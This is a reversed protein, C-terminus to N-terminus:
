IVPLGRLDSIAGWFYFRLHIIRSCDGLDVLLAPDVQIADPGAVTKFSIHFFFSLSSAFQLEGSWSRVSEESCVSLNICCLPDISSQPLRV